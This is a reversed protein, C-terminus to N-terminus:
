QVTFQLAALLLYAGGLVILMLEGVVIVDAVSSDRLWFPLPERRFARYLYHWFVYAAALASLGGVLEPLSALM